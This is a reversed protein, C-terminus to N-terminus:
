HRPKVAVSNEPTQLEFMPPRNGNYSHVLQHRIVVGVSYNKVAFSKSFIAQHNTINLNNSSM